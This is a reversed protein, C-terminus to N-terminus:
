CLRTVELFHELPGEGNKEPLYRALEILNDSAEAHHAEMEDDIIARLQRRVNRFVMTAQQQEEPEPLQEPHISDHAPSEMNRVWLDGENTQPTVVVTYDTWTVRRRPAVPNINLDSSATILMGKKNIYAARSPGNNPDLFVDLKGLPEVSRTTHDPQSRRIAKYFHYAARSSESSNLFGDITEHDIVVPKGSSPTITVSLQRRDIAMFFNECVALQVDTVWDESHPNFGLIFIGTGAADHLRFEDPIDRRGILPTMDESRYFGSNQLYDVPSPNAVSENLKPHAHTMLRAKGQCKEVRGRRNDLYRTSYIVTLIDSITFVANKGIGFSGGSVSGDKQVIGESEVLAHWNKPRLGRTGSDIVKLCRITANRLTKLGRELVEIDRQANTAGVREVEEVCATFHAALQDGGFAAKPITCDTIEVVVMTFGDDHSDLSNQIVERVVHRLRGAQFYTRAADTLGYLVGGNNPPFDWIAEVGTM